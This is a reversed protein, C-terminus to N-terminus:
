GLYHPKREFLFRAIYAQEDGLENALVTACIWVKGLLEIHVQTGVGV